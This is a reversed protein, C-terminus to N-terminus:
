HETHPTTGGVRRGELLAREQHDRWLDGEGELPQIDHVQGGFGRWCGQRVLQWLCIGRKEQCDRRCASWWSIGGGTERGCLM